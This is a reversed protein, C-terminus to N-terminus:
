RLDRGLGREQELFTDSLLFELLEQRAGRADALLRALATVADDSRIRALAYCADDGLEGSGRALAQLTPVATPERLYGLARVVSRVVPAPQEAALLPVLDGGMSRLGLQGASAVAAERVRADDDALARRLLPTAADELEVAADLVVQRRELPDRTELFRGLWTDLSAAGPAPESAGPLALPAPARTNREAVELAVQLAIRVDMEGAGLVATRLVIADDRGLDDPRARALSGYERAANSRTWKRGDRVATRLYALLAASRGPEDPIAEVALYERLAELREAGQRDDLEIVQVADHNPSRPRRAVLLVAEEGARPLMGPEGCFVTLVHPGGEEPLRDWPLERLVEEVEFRAIEVGGLAASISQTRGRIVLGVEPLVERGLHTVAPSKQPKRVPENADVRDFVSPAPEETAPADGSACAGVVLLVAPLLADPLRTRSPM